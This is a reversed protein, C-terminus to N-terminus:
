AVEQQEPIGEPTPWREVFAIMQTETAFGYWTWGHITASGRQWTGPQDHIPWCEDGFTDRCWQQIARDRRESIRGTYVNVMWPTPSWVKRMLEEHEQGENYALMRDYLATGSM